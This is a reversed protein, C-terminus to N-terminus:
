NSDDRNDGLVTSSSSAENREFERIAARERRDALLIARMVIVFLLGTGISPILAVLNDM